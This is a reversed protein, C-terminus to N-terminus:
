VSWKLWVTTATASIIQVAQRNLQFWRAARCPAEATMIQAVTSTALHSGILRPEDMVSSFAASTLYGLSQEKVIPYAGELEGGVDVDTGVKTSSYRSGMRAILLFRDDPIRGASKRLWLRHRNFFRGGRFSACPAASLVMPVEWVAKVESGMLSAAGTVVRGNRGLLLGNRREALTMLFPRLWRWFALFIGSGFVM